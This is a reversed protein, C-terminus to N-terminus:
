PVIIRGNAIADSREEFGLAADMLAQNVRTVYNWVPGGTVVDEFPAALPDSIKKLKHVDGRRDLVLRCWDGRYRINWHSRIFRGTDTRVEAGVLNWSSIDDEMFADVTDVTPINDWPHLHRVHVVRDFYDTEPRVVLRVRKFLAAPGTMVSFKAVPPKRDPSTVCPHELLWKAEYSRVGLPFMEKVARKTAVERLVVWSMGGFPSLQKRRNEDSQEYFLFYVACHSLACERREHFRTDAEATVTGVFRLDDTTTVIGLESEVQRLAASVWGEGAPVVGSVAIDFMGGDSKEGTPIRRLLTEIEGSESKRLIWVHFSRYSKKEAIVESLPKPADIPIGRWDVIDVLMHSNLPKKM